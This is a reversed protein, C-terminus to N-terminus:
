TKRNTMMKRTSLLLRKKSTEKEKRYKKKLSRRTVKEREKKRASQVNRHLSLSDNVAVVEEPSSVLVQQHPFDGKTSYYGYNPRNTFKM